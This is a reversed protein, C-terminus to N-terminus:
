RSAFSATAATTRAPMADSESVDVAAPTAARSAAPPPNGNAIRKALALAFERRAPTLAATSKDGLASEVLLERDEQGSGAVPVRGSLPPTLDVWSGDPTVNWWHRLAVFSGGAVGTNPRELVIFGKVIGYGLADAVAERLTTHQTTITTAEVFLPQLM